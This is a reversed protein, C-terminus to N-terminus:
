FGGGGGGVYVTSLFIITGCPHIATLLKATNSHKYFSWTQKQAAPRFPKKIAFETCDIVCRTRPYAAFAKPLNARAIDQTPWRLLTKLCTHLINVWLTFDRSVHSPSIGFLYSMHRVDFGKRIRVLTVLYCKFASIKYRKRGRPDRGKKQTNPGDWNKVSQSVPEIWRFLMKLVDRKPIGTYEKCLTDTSLIHSIFNFSTISQMQESKVSTEHGCLTCKVKPPEINLAYLLDVKVTDQKALDGQETNEISETVESSKEVAPCAMGDGKEAPDDESEALDNERETSDGESKAMDAEKEAPAGTATEEVNAQHTAM